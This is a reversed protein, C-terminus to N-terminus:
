LLMCGRSDVSVDVRATKLPESDSRGSIGDSKGRELRLEVGFFQFFAAFLPADRLSARSFLGIEKTDEVPM